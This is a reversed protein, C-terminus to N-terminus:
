WAGEGRVVVLVTRVLIKIDLWLSWQDIYAMDLEMWRDFSLHHRGSVQWLCSLGPRVSFRRRHWDENFQRYDRIPLPRPGVLSMEGKLVNILQPLEDISFKRMFRGAPTIRPDDALKFAAGQVENRAEIATLQAEADMVMSRFKLMQFQRKNYGLRIQRFIVPGPSSLKVAIAAALMVPSALILLVLALTRDMVEKLLGSVGEIRRAGVQLLHRDHLENSSVHPRGPFLEGELRLVLGLTQCYEAVDSVYAYYSKLPLCVIVEDIISVRLYAAVGALDAVHPVPMQAAEGSRNTMDDAYGVIHLGYEPHGEFLRAVEVARSNSGLILVHRLNRGRRRLYKQGLRLGLRGACSIVTASIWMNVLESSAWTWGSILYFMAAIGLTGLTTALVAHQLYSRLTALRHSRYNGTVVHGLWWVVPGLALCLFINLRPQVGGRSFIVAGALTMLPVIGSIFLNLLDFAQLCVLLLQRRGFSHSGTM